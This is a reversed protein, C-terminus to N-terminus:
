LSRLKEIEAQRKNTVKNGNAYKKLPVKGETVWRKLIAECYSWNRKNQGAAIKM